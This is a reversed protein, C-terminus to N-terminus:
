RWLPRQYKSHGGANQGAFSSSSFALNIPWAGVVLKSSSSLSVNSAGSTTAYSAVVLLLFFGDDEKFGIGDFAVFVRFVAEIVIGVTSAGADVGCSLSVCTRFLKGEVTSKAVM